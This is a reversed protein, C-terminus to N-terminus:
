TEQTEREPSYALFFDVGSRLGGEELIPRVVEATTGPYTTSVLVVLHGARLHARVSNVAEVIYTLDPERKSTLPTPVCLLIADALAISSYDTTAFLKEHEVAAAISEDRIYSIYSIGKNLLQIKTLDNDIGFVRSYNQAFALGLPVGAHGMGVIAIIARKSVLQHFLQIAFKNERPEFSM